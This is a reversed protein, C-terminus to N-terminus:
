QADRRDMLRDIQAEIRVIREHMDDIQARGASADAHASWAQQAGWAALSLLVGGIVAASAWREREAKALEAFRRADQQEHSIFAVALATHDRGPDSSPGKSAETRIRGTDDSDFDPPATM